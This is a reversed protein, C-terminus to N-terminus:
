ETEAAAVTAAQFADLDSMKFEVVASMDPTYTEFPGSEIAGIIAAAVTEPPELEIDFSAPDNDPREWIATDIAGPTILRVDVPQDWLDMAAAETWGTLAFKSASYATENLIGM